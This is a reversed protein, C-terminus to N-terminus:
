GELHFGALPLSMDQRIMSPMAASSIAPWKRSMIEEIKNSAESSNAITAVAIIASALIREARDLLGLLEGNNYNPEITHGAAWQLLHRASSHTYSCLEKWNDDFYKKLEGGWEETTQAGKEEIQEIRKCTTIPYKDKQLLSEIQDESACLRIWEGNILAELQIRELSLSSAYINNQLTLLIADFHNIVMGYCVAAADIRSDSPLEIGQITETLSKGFQIAENLRSQDM